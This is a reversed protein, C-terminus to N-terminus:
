PSCPAKTVKEMAAERQTKTMNSHVCVAKLCPPLGSVEFRLRTPWRCSQHWRKLQLHCPSPHSFQYRTM